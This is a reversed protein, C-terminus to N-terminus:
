KTLPSSVPPKEAKHESTPGPPSKISNGHGLDDSFISLDPSAADNPNITEIYASLNQIIADIGHKLTLSFLYSPNSLNLNKPDPTTVSHDLLKIRPDQENYNKLEDIVSSVLTDENRLDISM